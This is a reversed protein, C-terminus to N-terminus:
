AERLVKLVQRLAPRKGYMLLGTRFLKTGAWLVAPITILLVLVSGVVDVLPVEAMPFRLLMMTPSTLPFWSLVRILMTNPNSMVVGGVMLPIAAMFSFIGALQQSEQMTTGLAGVSGLLVAYVLFGLLFYVIGMGFIDPRGVLPVSVGLLSQAALSLGFASALWVVVQTLGLAGLGLVKGALLQGAGVSSLIVEIVRTSKEESVSRLLYSSSTFVTIVLLLGFFYAAMTNVVIDWTGRSSGDGSEVDVLVPQFPEVVRARLTSDLKTRLLHDVFFPRLDGGDLDRLSSGKGVVRVKGSELYDEPIVLLRGIDGSVVAARGSQEDSYARFRQQYGPLIPSVVGAQDVVGVVVSEPAFQRELFSSAQGGFLAAVLLALCGAVPVLALAIIFGIRRINVSYEHGAIVWVKRM